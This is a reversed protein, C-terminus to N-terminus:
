LSNQNELAVNVYVTKGIRLPSKDGKHFHGFLAYRPALLRIQKALDKCGKGGEDRIGFPAGHTVLVDIPEYEIFCQLRYRAALSAFVVGEIEMLSNELYIVEQPIMNELVPNVTEFNTDHNGSVFIKYRAPQVRFWEFFDKLQEKNGFNCADGAHILVDCAPIALGRHGGHTDSLAVVKLGKIIFDFM